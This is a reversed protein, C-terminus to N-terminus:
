KNQNKLRIENWYTWNKRQGVLKPNKAQEITAKFVDEVNPDQHVGTLLCLEEYLKTSEHKKLDRLSHIGLIKFQELTEPGVSALDSLKRNDKVPGKERTMKKFIAKRAEKRM